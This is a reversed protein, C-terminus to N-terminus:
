KNPINNFYNVTEAKIVQRAVYECVSPGNTEACSVLGVLQSAVVACGESTFM